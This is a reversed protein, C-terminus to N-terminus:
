NATTSWRRVALLLDLENQPVAMFTCRREAPREAWSQGGLGQRRRACRRDAGGAHRRALSVTECLTGNWVVNLRVGPTGGNAEAPWLAAFRLSRADALTEYSRRLNVLHERAEQRVSPKRM